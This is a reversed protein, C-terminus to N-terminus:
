MSFCSPPSIVAVLFSVKLVFILRIVIVPSSSPFSVVGHANQVVLLCCWVSFVQVHSLFPFRLLSVSDRRIAASFLTMFVLWILALISLVSYFLLHLNHPSLSSVMFRCSVVPHALPDLPLHALFKFKVMRVFPIHVVWCRDWLIFCM